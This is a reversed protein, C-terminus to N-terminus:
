LEIDSVYMMLIIERAGALGCKIAMDENSPVVVTKSMREGSDSM